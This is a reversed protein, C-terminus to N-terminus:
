LRFAVPDTGDSEFFEKKISTLSTKFDIQRSPQEAFYRMLLLRSAESM